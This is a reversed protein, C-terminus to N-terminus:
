ALPQSSDAKSWLDHIAILPALEAHVTSNGFGILFKATAYGQSLTKYGADWKQFQREATPTSFPFSLNAPRHGCRWPKPTLRARFCRQSECLRVYVPDTGVAKLMPIASPVDRPSDTFLVRLGMRTRYVRVGAGNLSRVLAQVSKIAASAPDASAPDPKRGFLRGLLSPAAPEPLDIDAMALRAANLVLAGYRNRTLAATMEGSGDAIREVCLERIADAAGYPYRDVIQDALFRAEIRKARELAMSRAEDQNSASWGYARYGNHDASAWYRPILM